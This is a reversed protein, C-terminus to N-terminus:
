ICVAMPDHAPGMKCTGTPHYITMTYHRAQCRLYEDSHFQHRACEDILNDNPRANLSRMTPTESLRRALKAAEVEPVSLVRRDAAPCHAPRPTTQKSSADARRKDPAPSTPFYIPRAATGAGPTPPAGAASLHRSLLRGTSVASALTM